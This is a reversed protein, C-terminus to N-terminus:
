TGTPPSTQETITVNWTIEREHEAPRNAQEIEFGLVEATSPSVGKVPDTNGAWPSGEEPPMTPQFGVARM